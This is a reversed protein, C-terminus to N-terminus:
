VRRQLYLAHTKDEISFREDLRMKALLNQVQLLDTTSLSGSFHKPQIHYQHMVTLASRQLFFIHYKEDRSFRGDNQMAGLYAVMYALEEENM